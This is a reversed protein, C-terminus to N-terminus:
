AEWINVIVVQLGNAISTMLWHDGSTNRMATIATDIAAANADVIRVEVDGQVM